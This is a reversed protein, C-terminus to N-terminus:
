DDNELAPDYKIQSSVEMYKDIHKECEDCTGRNKEHAFLNENCVRCPKM